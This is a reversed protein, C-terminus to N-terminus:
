SYADTGTAVNKPLGTHTNLKIDFWKSNEYRHCIALFSEARHQIVQLNM